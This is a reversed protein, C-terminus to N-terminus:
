FTGTGPSTARRTAPPTQCFTRAALAFERGGETTKNDFERKDAVFDKAKAGVVKPVWDGEGNMFWAMEEGYDMTMQMDGALLGTSQFRKNFYAPYWKDGERVYGM